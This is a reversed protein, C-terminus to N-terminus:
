VKEVKYSIMRCSDSDYDAEILYTAIVGNNSGVNSSDDYLRIRGSLMNNKDDYTTLDIYFNEQVLGLIRKILTVMSDFDNSFVQISGTKGWPFYISHYVSLFWTGTSNPIYTSRYHGNGLEKFQVNIISSVDDGNDNFIHYTFSTSDIGSVLANNSDTVSFDEYVPYSVKGLIM